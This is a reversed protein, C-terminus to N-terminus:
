SLAERYRVLVGSWGSDYASSPEEGGDAYQEWGRHEPEVRTTNGDPEFRVEIETPPAAPNVRWELM